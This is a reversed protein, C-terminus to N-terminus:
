INEVLQRKFLVIRYDNLGSECSTTIEEDGMLEKLTRSPCDKRLKHTKMGSRWNKEKLNRSEIILGKLELENQREQIQDM